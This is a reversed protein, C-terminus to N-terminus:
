HRKIATRCSTIARDILESTKGAYPMELMSWHDGDVVDTQVDGVLVDWGHADYTHRTAQFWRRYDGNEASMPDAAERLQRTGASSRECTGWRAWIMTTGNTPRCCPDMPAPGWKYMCRLSAFLREDEMNMARSDKSISTKHGTMNRNDGSNKCSKLAMSLEKVDEVNPELDWSQGPCHAKMDMLILKDIKEGSLLLLRATEYAHVAGASYGGLLYPGTRQRAKVAAAYLPDIEQPTHHMESPCHLFPSELVWVPTGSALPPLHAYVSASGGSGAILILPPYRSHPDGQLLVTNSRYRMTLDPYVTCFSPSSNSNRGRSPRYVDENPVGEGEGRSPYSHQPGRRKRVQSSGNEIQYYKGFRERVDSITRLLQFIAVPLAQGTDLEVKRLIALGMLSDVGLESLHTADHMDDANVGTESIIASIFAHAMSAQADFSPTYKAQLPSTVRTCTGASNLRVDTAPSRSPGSRHQVPDDIQIGTLLAALSTKRIQRFKLSAAIGVLRNDKLIYVDILMEGDAAPVARYYSLYTESEIYKESLSISGIGCSLYLIDGNNGPMMNMMFGSLHVLSDTHYPSLLFASARGVPTVTPKIVAVADRTGDAEANQPIFAGTIGRFRGSYKVVADFLRYFIHNGLHDIPGTADEKATCLLAARARIREIEHGWKTEMEAQQERVVQCCGHDELEGQGTRSRFSVHAVWNDSVEAFAHVEIEQRESDNGLVLPKSLELRNLTLCSKEHEGRPLRQNVNAAATLAMDVYVSTPCVCFDEIRHNSIADCLESVALSSAFIMEIKQASIVQHKIRQITATPIFVQAQPRPPEHGLGTNVEIGAAAATATTYPQWFRELDFHYNPLRLLKLHAVFPRHFEPWDISCGMAYAKGLSTALSKWNSEDRQLSPLLHSPSAQLTERILRLCTSGSGIEIWMTDSTDTSSIDLAELACVFQVPECSHRVIYDPGFVDPTGPEVIDGTVTSVVPIRPPFFSISRAVQGLHARILGMHRTHFAYPIDLARTEFGMGHAVQEFMALDGSPGGVIHSVPSNYCAIHCSKFRQRSELLGYVQQRTASVNMMGYAQSALASRILSARKAVLWLTDSVSLVGAVCLAAYEGISHGLVLDPKVRWSQWLHALALQVCVIALHSEVIDSHGILDSSSIARVLRFTGRCLELDTCIGQLTDLQQRFIPHTEYLERAVAFYRSGQGSFVFITQGPGKGQGKVTNLRGDLNANSVESALKEVLEKISSVVYGVRCPYHMRRATTSYAVDELEVNPHQLLYQLLRKMNGQLSYATQASVTILHWGRPCKGSPRVTPPAREVLLCTNGGAADFSNVLINKREAHFLQPATDIRIGSMNLKEFGRNLKTHPEMMAQPPIMGKELMLAAKIISAVGAASECHGINAKMSGVYLPKQQDFHSGFTWTVSAMEAQDGAVTGTGHMEIYGVQHPKAGAQRLVRRILKEQSEPHPHTMSLAGASYNRAWGTILATIHDNEALADELRKLVLVGVGEGRCYGDADASFTKCGGQPALFSTKGLAAFEFPSNTIQAGGALAVDCERSLLATCALQTATASSSCASDISYSGGKFKFHHNVRGPSFARLLGPATFVDIGREASVERWVDANQGFYVATREGGRSGIGHDPNYGANELGELSAMLLLRHTPDIQMAERPSVHFLRRDFAGPDSLFCGDTNMMTNKGTGTADYFDAVNFRDPPVKGHTMRREMLLKWLEDLNDAQPFRASMGVIAIAGSGGRLARDSKLDPVSFVEVELGADELTRTLRGTQASPGLASLTVTTCIAKLYEATATFTKQVLLPAQLVAPLIQRTVDGLTESAYPTCSDTSMICAETQLALDWIYSPKVTSAFDPPALHPAHVAGAVPLPLHPLGDFEPTSLLIELVSPPGSVTVWGHGVIGVWTRKHKPVGHTEHFADLLPQLTAETQKPFMYSWRGHAWEIRKARMHNALAMSFYSPFAEISLKALETASRATAALAAPFICICLGVLVRPSTLITPDHEARLILEGLRAFYSVTCSALVPSGDTEAHKESLELLSDFSPIEERIDPQLSGFEIQCVDSADRLFRALLGSQKSAVYLNEITYAVDDTQDGFLLVHNGM